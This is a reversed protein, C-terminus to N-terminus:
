EPLMRVALSAVTRLESLFLGNRAELAMGDLFVILANAIAPVDADARIEGARIAQRLRNVFMERTGQRLTAMKDIIETEDPSINVAGLIIVCGCPHAPSLLINAADMFFDHIALRIDPQKQFRRCTELWYKDFYFKVAELFLAAKNGFAAYLSPPNIGMAACLEPLTAPEFGKEWFVALAKALAEERDFERPRGKVTKKVPKAVNKKASFDLEGQLM